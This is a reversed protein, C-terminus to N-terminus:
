SDASDIPKFGGGLIQHAESVIVFAHPDAERIMRKLTYFEQKRVVCILLYTNDQMYAGTGSLITASRHLESIIHASIEQPKHTVIMCSKGTDAGYLLADMVKGSTFSMILGYLATEVSGYLLAAAAMILGNIAVVLQGISIYPYRKQVLKTIIDTGGGTSGQMFVLGGAVGNFIGGYLSALLPDGVYVIQPNSFFLDVLVTYIVVTRLTRVVFHKGLSRYAMLLLPLNILFGLSGIPLGTVFNIMLAIGSSGGMAIHNPSAFMTIGISWLIAAAFDALIGKIAQLLQENKRTM